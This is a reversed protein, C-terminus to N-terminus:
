NFIDIKEYEYDIGKPAKGKSELYFLINELTAKIASVAVSNGLQKMATSNSVPFKFSKPFGMMAKGEEVGLRTVKGNIRYADWNRRDDIGSGRGGM